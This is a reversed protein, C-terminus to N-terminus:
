LQLLALKKFEYGRNPIYGKRKLSEIIGEETDQNWGWEEHYSHVILVRKKELAIIGGEQNRM